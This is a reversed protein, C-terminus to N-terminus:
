KPKSLELGEISAIIATSEPKGHQKVWWWNGYENHNIEVGNFIDGFEARKILEFEMSFVMGPEAKMKM